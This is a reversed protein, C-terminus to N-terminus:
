GKGVSATVDNAGNFPQAISITTRRLLSRDAQESPKVGHETAFVTDHGVSALRRWPVSVETV